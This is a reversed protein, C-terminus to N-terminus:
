SIPEFVTTTRPSMDMELEELEHLPVENMDRDRFKKRFRDSETGWDPATSDLSPAAVGRFTSDNELQSAGNTVGKIEHTRLIRSVDQGLDNVGSQMLPVFSYAASSVGIVVVSIVLMYETATQGSEESLFEWWLDAFRQM